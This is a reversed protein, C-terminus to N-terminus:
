HQRERGGARGRERVDDKYLTFFIILALPVLGNRNHKLPSHLLDRKRFASPDNHIEATNFTCICLYMEAAHSIYLGLASEPGGFLIALFWLAVKLYAQYTQVTPNKFDRVFGFTTQLTVSNINSFCLTSKKLQFSSQILM